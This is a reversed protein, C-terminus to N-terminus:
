FICTLAFIFRNPIERNKQFM